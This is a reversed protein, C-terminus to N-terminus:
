RGLGAGAAGGRGELLAVAGDESRVIGALAGARGAAALMAAQGESTATRGAKVELMALVAIRQGVMDPTVEISRWGILDPFGTPAGHFPRPNELTLTTATRHVIKGTWAMGANIRFLRSAGRSCRLLINTLLARESM